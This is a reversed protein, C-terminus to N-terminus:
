IAYFSLSRFVIIFLGVLFWPTVFDGVSSQVKIPEGHSERLISRLSFCQGLVLIERFGQWTGASM